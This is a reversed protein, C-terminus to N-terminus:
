SPYLNEATTELIQALRLGMVISPLVTNNEYRRYASEKIGAREAVEKQTLHLEERREKLRNM